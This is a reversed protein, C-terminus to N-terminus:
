PATGPQPDPPSRVVFWPIAMCGKRVWILAPSGEPHRDYVSRAVTIERSGRGDIWPDVRLYYSTSKGHAYWRAVVVTKHVDPVSRDLACNLFIVLGYSYVLSVVCLSALTGAKRREPGQACFLVLAIVTGGFVAFPTWFGSWALVHWDLFARLGLISAPGTVAVAITPRARTMKGDLTVLGHSWRVFGIALVPVLALLMLALDYPHPYFWAWLSVASGAATLIHSQTRARGLATRRDAESLGLNEDALIESLEAKVDDADLDRFKERLVADLEEARELALDIKIPKRTRDRPFLLLVPTKRGEPVRFGEIEDYGVERAQSWGNSYRIGAPLIELRARFASRLLLALLGALGIGLLLVTAGLSYGSNSGRVFWVPGIVCFAIMPVLFCVALTRM